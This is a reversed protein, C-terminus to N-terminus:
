RLRRRLLTLTAQEAPGHTLVLTSTHTPDAADVVGLDITRGRRFHEVVRPDIYSARAVAPTNGLHHAVESTARRIASDVERSSHLDGTAALAVAMLVTGHWTRFDKPTFDSGLHHRVSGDIDRSTVDVWRHGEQWALLERGGGRRLLLPRLVDALMPDVIRREQRQRGKGLYRFRLVDGDLNVDRKLMTALGSTGNESLYREGGIRFFGIDLLRFAAALVRDRSLEEGSALVQAVALRAEPLLEALRVVRRHKARDRAARWDDHYRYQRRGAADTGVAQLHADADRCIWVDRWAPPIALSRIRERTAPDVPRGTPGIYSFGGGRRVRRIGPERVDSRRM